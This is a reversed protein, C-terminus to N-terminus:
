NGYNEILKTLEQKAVEEYGWTDYSELVKMSDQVGEKYMQICATRIFDRMKEAPLDVYKDQDLLEWPICTSFEDFEEMVKELENPQQPM